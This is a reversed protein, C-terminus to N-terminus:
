SLFFIDLESVDPLYNKNEKIKLIYGPVTCNKITFLGSSPFLINFTNGPHVLSM